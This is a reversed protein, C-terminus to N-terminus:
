RKLLASWEGLIVPQLSELSWNASVQRQAASRCAQLLDADLLLVGRLAEVLEEVDGPPCVAGVDGLLRSVDGVDTGVPVAGRAMAELLFMPFAEARSPLVAVAATRLVAGLEDKSIARHLTVGHDPPLADMWSGQFDPGIPGYIELTWGLPRMQSALAGWARLLVDVGKRTGVVGGFVVVRRAPELGAIRAEYNYVLQTHRGPSMSEVIGQAEQTLCLVTSSAALMFKVRHPHAVAYGAFTSGHLHAVVPVGVARAFWMVIAERPIGQAALHAHLILGGRRGKIIAVGARFMLRLDSGRGRNRTTALSFQEVGKADWSSWQRAVTAIGGAPEDLPGIHLVRM